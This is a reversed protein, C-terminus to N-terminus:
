IWNWGGWHERTSQRGAGKQMVTTKGSPGMEICGSYRELWRRTRGVTEIYGGFIPQGSPQISVCATENCGGDHYLWWRYVFIWIGEFIFEIWNSNSHHYAGEKNLCKRWIKQYNQIEFNEPFNQPKIKLALRGCPRMFCHYHIWGLQFGLFESHISVAVLDASKKTSIDLCDRFQCAVVM